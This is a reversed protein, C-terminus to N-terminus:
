VVEDLEDRLKISSQLLSRLVLTVGGLTALVLAALSLGLVLGPHGAHSGVLIAGIVGLLAIGLSLLIILVDVWRVSPRALMLGSRVRFILVAITVVSAQVTLVFSIALALTPSKLHAVEPFRRASEEALPLLAIELGMLAIVLLALAGTTLLVLVLPPRPLPYTM